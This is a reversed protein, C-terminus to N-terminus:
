NRISCRQQGLDKVNCSPKFTFRVSLIMQDCTVHLTCPSRYLKSNAGGVEKDEQQTSGKQVLHLKM